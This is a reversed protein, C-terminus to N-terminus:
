PHIYVGIADLFEGSCGFFGVITGNKKVRSHFPTGHLQGFPGYTRLNTVLMLSKIISPFQGYPGFTGSIELVLESPELLITHITGGVGGWLPTEHLNENKDLYSFAFADIVDGCCIRVSRLYRPAVKIDRKRGTNGGWPGIKELIIEQEKFAEEDLQSKEEDEIMEDEYYRIVDVRPHKPNVYSTKRMAAGAEEVEILSSGCCHMRITVLKVSHLNELGVEFNNYEDKAERVQFTVELTQLRPMAGEVFMIGLSDNHIHFESLCKFNAHDTGIILREEAKKIKHVTVCLYHLFPINGLTGLDEQQIKDLTIILTSLESLSSNMWEPLRPINGFFYRLNHPTWGLDVIFKTPVGSSQISIEKIKTLKCLSCLLHKEYNKDWTGSLSIKLIRLDTLYGLEKSFNPSAGAGVTSLVQLSKMAGIGDPLRVSTEIYLCVLKRLQVITSPLDIIGSQSLDLTQLCYLYGVGKPLKTINTDRLGLYRLHFLNGVGHLHHNELDRCGELDLVRLVQFRSLPPMLKTASPFIIFSRVHSLSVMSLSMTNTEQNNQISLRHIKKSLDSPQHSDLTTVFNEETSLSTILDLVMDHVRCAGVNGRSDVHQPQVLSRNILDNFYGFGVKYLTDVDSGHVFGEAIWRRVLHDSLIAYDEPYVSLYLFCPKLHSPLDYYSISLIQRMNEMNPFKELGSGISKNVTDWEHINKSKHSLLSAITIIALPVGDCKRIIKQSIERLKVHCGDESGFIREHFLKKSDDHGLPNLKYINGDISSSCSAAVGAIRTTTIVRSSCNNEVLVTKICNWASEDWIDDVIILYRKDQLVQRIKDILEVVDWAEVESYSQKSVQRLLSGLVRRLDPKLSVTVFADCDFRGRIQQYVVNALTTKGLGGVGVISVVKLQGDMTGAGEQEVLLRCLEARPGGVAVLRASDEYMGHLRPDVTAGAPRRVAFAGDDVRYRGRRDAVEKVLGRIGRIDTAIRHRVRATTLLSLCRGIFGSFGPHHLDVRVMFRDISDEVDYSLERVQGAWIRVQRDVPQASPSSVRELAAQMSELEARLFMIEGRLSRQLRYEDTLVADLKHLLASLVAGAMVEM